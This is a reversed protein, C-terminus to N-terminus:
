SVASGSLSLLDVFLVLDLSFLEVTLLPFEDLDLVILEVWIVYLM